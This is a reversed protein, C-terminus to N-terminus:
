LCRATSNRIVLHVPLTIKMAGLERGDVQDLLLRAAEAGMEYHPSAVTTMAPQFDATFPMNNFGIVSIDKPCDLNHERLAHYVGLALLDNAAIVATFKVNKSDLSKSMVRNGADVSYASSKLIEGSVKLTKCSEVFAKARVKSTSFNVPGSLHLIRRHGLEVLHLVAAHIGAADDGIVCPTAVETAERNVMVTKIGASFYKELRGAESHGTAIIFGDVQRNVLSNFLKEEYEQNNDTNVVFASYGRSSLVSDIGRVIPPFIPNTLDPIIVGITMSRKTRLGRAVTNPTYGLRKAINNIKKVTGTSVQGSTEPNLSRSVTSVNVGAEKAVDSLTVRRQM